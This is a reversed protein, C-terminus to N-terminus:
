DMKFNMSVNKFFKTKTSIILVQNMFFPIKIANANSVM